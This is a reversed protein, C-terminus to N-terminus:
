ATYSGGLPNPLPAFPAAAVTYTGGPPNALTVAEQIGNANGSSGVQNGSPGFVYLDWDGASFPQLTIVVVYAGFSPDPPIITLKFNDCTSDDPGSCGGATAVAVSPGSWTVTPNSQSVTGSSPTAAFSFNAMLIVTLGYRFAFRLAVKSM